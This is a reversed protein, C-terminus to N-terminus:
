KGAKKVAERIADHIDTIPEHEDDFTVRKGDSFEYVLRDVVTGAVDARLRIVRGLVTEVPPPAGPKRKM